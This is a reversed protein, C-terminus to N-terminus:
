DTVFRVKIGEIQDLTLIRTGYKKVRVCEDKRRRLTLRERCGQFSVRATLSRRTRICVRASTALRRLWAALLRAAGSPRTTSRCRCPWPAGARGASRSCRARTAWTPAVHLARGRVLAAVATTGSMADDVASAHLQDNTTLVAEAFAEEPAAGFAPDMVLNAPVQAAGRV